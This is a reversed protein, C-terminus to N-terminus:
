TAGGIDGRPNDGIMYHNSIPGDYLKEGINELFSLTLKYKDITFFNKEFLNRM